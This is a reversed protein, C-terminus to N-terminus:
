PCMLRQLLSSFIKKDVETILTVNAQTIHAEEWINAGRQSDADLHITGRLTKTMIVYEPHMLMAIAYADCPVFGQSPDLERSYGWIKKIHHAVHHDKDFLEDFEEWTFGYDMSTEFPLVYLKDASCHEYIIKTAEPDCGVNFEAHETMNGEGRSLGGMVVLMKINSLFFPDILTALAINTLPGLGVVV